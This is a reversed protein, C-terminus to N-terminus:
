ILIQQKQVNPLCPLVLRYYNTALFTCAIQAESDLTVLSCRIQEQSAKLAAQPCVILSMCISHFLRIICISKACPHSNMTNWPLEHYNQLYVYTKFPKSEDGSPGSQQGESPGFRDHMGPYGQILSSSNSATSPVASQESCPGTILELM